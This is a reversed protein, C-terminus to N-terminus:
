PRFEPDNEALWQEAARIRRHGAPYRAAYIAAARRMWRLAEDLHGLEKEVSALSSCDRAVAPHDDGYATEDIALASALLESAADANGDDRQLSALAVYSGAISPHDSDFVGKRIALAQECLDRARARNGRAREVSAIAGYSNAIVPHDPEYVKRRIELAREHLGRAKSRDGQEWLVVAIASYSSALAPHEPEFAKKRIELAQQNLELAITSSGLERELSALGAYSSALTPHDDAFAKKRIGLARNHLQRSAAYNAVTQELSAMGAYSGALVPHDAEYAQQRIALAREFLERAAAFRALEKMLSGLGAYSGALAPHNESLAKRRVSLARQHLEEAAAYHALEQELSALSACNAALTPHDAQLTKERVALARELLERAVAFHSLDREVAALDCYSNALIQHDAEYVQERIRVARELLARAAPLKALDREVAAMAAYSNAITPHDADYVKERIDIAKQCLARAADLDGLSREVSALDAYSNALSPHEAAYVREKLSIAQRHLKRAAEFHALQGEIIALNSYGTALAKPDSPDANEWIAVAREALERARGYDGLSREVTALNAYGKALVPHGPPLAGEWAKVARELLGRAADLSGLAREMMGLNSYSTALKPHDAGYQKERLAVAQRLLGRAEVFRGLQQLPETLQSGLWAGFPDSANAFLHACAVLPALEWRADQPVWGSWLSKARERLFLQIDRKRKARGDGMRQAVVDQVLRHMRSLHESETPTLIRLGALRREVRRWPNPHGPRPTRSLEPFAQGVLQQLWPTAVADPPLLSALEVVATEEASLAELTPELLRGILKETHRSLQVLEDDGAGDVAALGEEELRALYDQYSVDPNQWLFVAVVEVALAHGDLRRVIRLAAKWEEDSESKSFPRHKELLRVADAESLADLAVCEAGPLKDAGLRTTALVHVKARDPLYRSCQQPALLRPEDVNDLVLLTRRRSNLVSKVRVAAAELDRQEAENLEIDLQPVLKLLSERLDADGECAILFRGDPYDDAYAHAYEFAMASKGIGGIGHVAAIAGVRGLALTERLRRLEEIRGVFNPNHDPVTTPSAKVRTARYLREGIQQDLLELRRRVDERELAEPGQSWWNRVDLYQRRKLNRMWENLAEDAHDEFEAHTAIYIPAIAEGPMAQSLEHDLYIEWEKRCYESQFYAPSLAALMIKSDRLGRLIRHEWDSMSTIETQDFFIRLPTSTFKAHEARIAEVLATLWGDSNDAHAYSIFLDFEADSPTAM